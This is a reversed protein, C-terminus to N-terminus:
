ASLRSDHALESHGTWGSTDLRAALAHFGHRARRQGLRDGPPLGVLAARRPRSPIPPPAGEALADRVRGEFEPDDLPLTWPAIWGGTVQRAFVCARGEFALLEALTLDRSRDIDPRLAIWAAHHYEHAVADALAEEWGSEQGVRLVILNAGPTLGSVGFM